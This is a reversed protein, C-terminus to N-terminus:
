EFSYSGFYARKIMVYDLVGLEETGSVMAAKLYAGSLKYTNFFARKVYIYDYSTISGDGDTDGKIVVTVRTGDSAKVRYGTGVVYEWTLTNSKNDQVSVTDDFCQKLKYVKMDTPVGYLYGDSISLRSDNIVFTGTVEEKDNNDNNDSNDSDSNDGNNIEVNVTIKGNLTVYDGSCYGSVAKGTNDTAEVSYWGNSTKEGIITVTTGSSLIGLATGSTSAQSRVYLNSTTVGTYLVNIYAASSYGSVDAGNIDTGIVQYWGDAESLITVQTNAAFRSITDYTTGAGSRVYVEDTTRGYYGEVVTVGGSGIDGDTSEDESEETSTDDSTDESNGSNDIQAYGYIATGSTNLGAVTYWGNDDSALVAYKEGEGITGLSPSDEDKELYICIDGDATKNTVSSDVIQVYPAYVYGSVTTGSTNKGSVKYWAGSPEGLITVEALHAFSGIRTSDTTPASRINLTSTTVVGKYNKASSAVTVAIEESVGSSATVTVTAKGAAKATIVGDSVTAVASNSSKWSLTDRELGVGSLATSVTYTTGTKLTIDNKIVSINSVERKNKIIYEAAAYGSVLTGASNYGTVAYFDTGSVSDTYIKDSTIKIASGNSFRGKTGASTSASTRVNIDSNIITANCDVYVICCAERGNALTASILTTGHAVAKVNGKSDVTAVSPNDSKWTISSPTKDEPFYNLAVTHSDGINLHVRESDATIAVVGDSDPTIDDFETLGYDEVFSVVMDVYGADSCYGGAVIAEAAKRYDTEGVVPKYNTGTLFLKSHADLSDGWGDFAQWTSAKTDAYAHGKTLVMDDYSPYLAREYLDYVATKASSFAKMGFLNNAGSPLTAMGWGAEFIAQSVTISALINNQYYDARALSGITRVYYQRISNLSSIDIAAASETPFAFCSVLMVAALLFSIYRSAKM